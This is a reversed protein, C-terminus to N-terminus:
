GKTPNGFEILARGGLKMLDQTGLQNIRESESPELDAPWKGFLGLCAAESCIEVNSRGASEMKKLLEVRDVFSPRLLAVTKVNIQEM